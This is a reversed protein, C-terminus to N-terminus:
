EVIWHKERTPLHFKCFKTDVVCPDICGEYRCVVGTGPHKFTRGISEMWRVIERKCELSIGDLTYHEPEYDYVAYGEEECWKLLANVKAQEVGKKLVRLEEYGESLQM